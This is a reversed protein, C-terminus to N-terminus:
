RESRSSASSGGWRDWHTVERSARRRPRRFRGQPYGLPILAVTTVEEPIGLIAKVEAERARHLTTLTGGLGRARAALLLNQVAPFISGYWAAASVPDRPPPTTMCALVLVPAEALREALGLAHRYVRATDEDLGGQELGGRRIHAEGLARYVEGIRRRLEPDRVVVFGWPQANEGSPAQTAADIVFRLDEDPIPDRRFRRVAPTSYLAETLSIEDM